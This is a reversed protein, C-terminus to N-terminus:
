HAGVVLELETGTVDIEPQVSMGVRLRSTLPQEPELHIRVPLRQVIKTFNGTANHPAIPSYSAGSAPGLSEVRGRLIEGPFADVRIAVAQGPRVHALQTERFNAAVYMDEVPIIALLPEGADVFAGTRVSRKGVIGSIPALIRTYSLRLEAAARGAQAEALVARARELDASLVNVQQRAAQLGAEDRDKGALAVALEAEAQQMAQFTGSGDAALNRYREANARALGLAASNVSLAAEAQRIATEQLVLRLELNQAEAHASQVKARAAAVAVTFDRDDIVAMLDGAQVPLDEEILVETVVGSIRSSVVTFDAQVYADDTSQTSASGEPRNFYFFAGVVVVFLLVNTCVRVLKPLAM